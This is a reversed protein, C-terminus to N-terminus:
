PKKVRNLARVIHIQERESLLDGVMNMVREVTYDAMGEILGEEAERVPAGKKRRKEIVYAFFANLFDKGEPVALIDGIRDTVVFGEESCGDLWNVAGQKVQCRYGEYPKEVHEIEITDSCGEARAEILHRGSIPVEFSFFYRGEQVAFLKQDVYLAVKPLNTYVRISTTAEHRFVYRSGALRVFPERSWRAKYVYFADKRTKRDYTVLGKHNKGPDGAEERADAAFDFMNWVYTCWLYPMKEIQELLKEHYYEQYSESYDGVAPKPSQYAVLADAGYESLGVPLRPHAAHFADLWPKYQSVNGEYWGFYLNWACIDATEVFPSDPPLMSIHAMTSPRTQDLEEKIAKLAAHTKIIGDTVGKLTIENSLGWCVICTHNYNQTILERFQSLINEHGEKLEMTIYPVEAWVVLGAEDCLSYFYDDHQYHALRVSNAGLERILAIDEEHERRTVAYGMNERDQHRSVGRLPYSKGNLFFGREPDVSFTRLGFRATFTDLPKGEPSLLVAELTYLHPDDVGQWLVPDPISLSVADGSPAELSAVPTKGDLIRWSIEAHEGGAVYPVLEVSWAGNQEKPTIKVGGGMATLDFHSRRVILLGVSRYIGGFFTFDAAQPYVRDSVANSVRVTLQAPVPSVGETQEASVTERPPAMPFQPVGAIVGETMGGCCAASPIGAGRLPAEFSTVGETQKASVERQSPPLPAGNACLSAPSLPSATRFFRTVDAYFRSYGGEHRTVLEGSIFVEATQSVGYFCLYAEEDEKLTLAPLARTYTCEGRFYDSGGDQGDIANWTHPLTVKEGSASEAAATGKFFIWNDNLTIIM